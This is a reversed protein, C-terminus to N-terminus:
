RSSAFILMEGEETSIILRGDSLEFTDGNGLATLLDQEQDMLGEPEMCAMETMGLDSFAIRNQDEAYSGFFSNCGANGQVLGSEFTLTFSTGEILRSKRYSNLTWSSGNLRDNSINPQPRDGPSDSSLTGSLSCGALGLLLIIGLSVNLISAKKM